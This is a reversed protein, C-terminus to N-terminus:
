EQRVFSSQEVESFVPISQAAGQKSVALTSAATAYKLCTPVPNNDMLMRLFYGTFTDGAATTDVVKIDFIGQKAFTNADSYISGRKGLTLLIATQPYKQKLKELIELSDKCGTLEYGEIENLILLNVKHLPMKKLEESIPSPNLVIRLGRKDAADIIEALMSIENQLLIYDDSKCKSIVEDIYDHTIAKNAGGHYMICNQGDKDVQIITHGSPGDVSRIMDVNVGSSALVSVLRKGDNGIMGAMQCDAGARGLAIAQNLGKGGDCLKYFSSELTEGPELIHDVDYVHDINLSGFCIISM